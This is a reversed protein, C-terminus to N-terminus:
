LTPDVSVALSCSAFLSSRESLTAEAPPKPLTEVAVGLSQLAATVNFDEAEFGEPNIQATAGTALAALQITRVLKM